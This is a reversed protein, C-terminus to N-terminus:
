TRCPRWNRESMTNVDKVGLSKGVQAAPGGSGRIDGAGRRRLVSGIPVCPVDEDTM